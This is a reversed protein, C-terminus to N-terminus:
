PKGQSHQQRTDEYVAFSMAVPAFATHSLGSKGVHDLMLAQQTVLMGSGSVARKQVDSPLVWIAICCICAWSM